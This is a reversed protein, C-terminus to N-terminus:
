SIGNMLEIIAEKAKSIAEFTGRLKLEDSELQSPPVIIYCGTDQRLKQIQAGGRGIIAGHVKRPVSWVEQTTESVNNAIELLQNKATSVNEPRGEITVLEPQASDRNNPMFILVDLSECLRKIKEGKSGIINGHFRVPIQIQETVFTTDLLDELQRRANAVNEIKGRILFFKKTTRNPIIEVGQSQYQTFLKRFSAMGPGMLQAFKESGCSITETTTALREEVIEKIRQKAETVEGVTGELSVLCVGNAIDGVDIRVATSTRLEKITEGGRGLLAVVASGPIEMSDQHHRTQEYEVYEIMEDIAAQLNARPGTVNITNNTEDAVNPFTVKVNYKQGLHKINKGGKGILMAHLEHAVDFSKSGRDALKKLKDSL